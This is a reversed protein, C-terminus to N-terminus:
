TGRITVRRNLVVGSADNLAFTAIYTQGKVVNFRLRASITCDFKLPSTQQDVPDVTACAEHDHTLHTVMNVVLEDEDLRAHLEGLM